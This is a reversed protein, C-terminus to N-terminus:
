PAELAALAALDKAWLKGRLSSNEERVRQLERLLNQHMRNAEKIRNNVLEPDEVRALLLVLLDREADHDPEHRWDDLSQSFTGSNRSLAAPGRV